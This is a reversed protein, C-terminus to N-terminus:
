CNGVPGFSKGGGRVHGWPASGWPSNGEWHQGHLRLRLLTSHSFLTLTSFLDKSWFQGKLGKNFYAATLQPLHTYTEWGPTKVVAGGPKTISRINRGAPEKRKKSIAEQGHKDPSCIAQCIVCIKRVRMIWNGRDEIPERMVSRSVSRM